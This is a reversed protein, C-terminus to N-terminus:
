EKFKANVKGNQCYCESKPMLKANIQGYRTIKDYTISNFLQCKNDTCKTNQALYVQYVSAGTSNLPLYFLVLYCLVYLGEPDM